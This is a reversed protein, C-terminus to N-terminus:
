NNVIISAGLPTTGSGVIGRAFVTYIKGAQLVVGPVNLVSTTTGAVRVDINYTGAPVPTFASNTNASLQTEFARNSFLPTFTTGTLYGVTVSPAGPSLHFFRIHANGATPATLNDVVAISGLSALNNIAFVSYNVDKTVTIDANIVTASTGAANVKINRSGENIDLYPTSNPFTLASSNQKVNDILFDVGPADPSAHTVMIKGTEPDDDKDCAVFASSLMLAFLTKSLTSFHKKMM